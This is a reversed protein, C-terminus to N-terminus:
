GGPPSDGLKEASGLVPQPSQAAVMASKEQLLRELVVELDQKEKKALRTEAEANRRMKDAKDSMAQAVELQTKREAAIMRVQGVENERRAVKVERETLSQTIAELATKRSELAENAQRIAEVHMEFMQVLSEAAGRFAQVKEQKEQEIM